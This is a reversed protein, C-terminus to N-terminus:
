DLHLRCKQLACMSLVLPSLYSPALGHMMPSQDPDGSEIM